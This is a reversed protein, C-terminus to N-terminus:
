KETVAQVQSTPKRVNAASMKGSEHVPLVAAPKWLVM